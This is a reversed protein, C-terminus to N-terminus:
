AFRRASNSAVTSTAAPRHTYIDLECAVISPPSNQVPTLVVFEVATSRSLLVSEMCPVFPMQLRVCQFMPKRNSCPEDTEGVSPLKILRVSTVCVKAEVPPPLAPGGVMTRKRSM